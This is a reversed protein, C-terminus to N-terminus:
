SIISVEGKELYQLDELNGTRVWEPDHKPLAKADHENGGAYAQGM